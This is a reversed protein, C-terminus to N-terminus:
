SMIVFPAPRMAWVASSTCIFPIPSFALKVCDEPRVSLSWWACSTTRESQARSTESSPEPPTRWSSLESKPSVVEPAPEAWFRSLRLLLLQLRLTWKSKNYSSTLFKGLPFNKKRQFVRLRERTSSPRACSWSVSKKEERSFTTYMGLYTVHSFVRSMKKGAIGDSIAPTNMFPNTLIPKLISPSITKDCPSKQYTKFNKESEDFIIDNFSNILTAPVRNDMKVYTRNQRPSPTWQKMKYKAKVNRKMRLIGLSSKKKNM